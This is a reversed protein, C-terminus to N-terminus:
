PVTSSLAAPFASVCPNDEKQQQHWRAMVVALQGVALGGDNTPIRSPVYVNKGLQEIAARTRRTLHANQFCGGGLVVDKYPSSAAVVASWSALGNHFRAACVGAAVDRSIDDVLCRILPRWDGREVSSDDVRISIPYATEEEPDVADELLCPAEGEYSVEQAKLLLAAVADFLRGVSSTQPSHIHRELMNLLVRSRAESLGLRDLLWAPIGTAGFTEALLSLAIRNPEHIAAEGGPLAFLDLSAVRQFESISAHLFEGGWITGDMGFGTGDFIVGFVNRGLLCHDAM